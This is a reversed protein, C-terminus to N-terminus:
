AHAAEENLLMKSLRNLVDRQDDDLELWPKDGRDRLREADEGQRADHGMEHLELLIRVNIAFPGFDRM